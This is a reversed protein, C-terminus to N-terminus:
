MGLAEHMEYLIVLAIVDISAVVIIILRTEVTAAVRCINMALYSAYQLARCTYIYRNFM